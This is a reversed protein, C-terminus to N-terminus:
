SGGGGLPVPTASLTGASDVELRFVKPITGAPADYAQLLVFPLAVNANLKAAFGRRCWTSFQNLYNTLTASIDPMSPIPPPPNAQPPSPAPMAM